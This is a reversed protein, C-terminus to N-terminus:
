GARDLLRLRDGSVILLELRNDGLQLAKEPVLLSFQQEHSGEVTFTLGMAAIRGNIALAVTRGGRRPGGRVTGVVHTPVFGTAPDVNRYRGAAAIRAREHGGPLPQLDSVRRGLLEPHPGFAYLGAGFLNLKRKLAARKDREFSSTDVLYSHRFKKAIIRRQRQAAVTPALASRGDASWPIRLGILDAITPLLDITRLPKDSIRGRHQGPAKIFFPVPAIDQVNAARVLRRDHGFRFSIGHDAVVAVVARAYTGSEHLRDLLEGLLRDTAQLQLLHRQYGQEVLFRIAHGPRREPGPLAEPSTRYFRGSPLYQFPVHPLLTHLLHLRPRSGGGIEAVFREFRRTRGRALNAHLRLYRHRKTERPTRRADAVAASTGAAATFRRWTETVSPLERGLDDPLLLHAYVLSVEDLLPRMRGGSGERAESACLSPPCLSTAEERVHLEYRGALMTFLSQPHDAAVPLREQRPLRADLIAPVAYPTDQAVSTTNRYWTADRALRAFNPFRRADVRGDAAMLSHVPLEDFIVLVVPARKTDAQVDAGDPFALKSVDSFLLFLAVFVLPAPSLVSLFSQAPRARAYILATAVGLALAIGFGALPYDREVVQLALAAVLVTVVALHFAWGLAVSVLGALWEVGLLVLPPVLILALAFAVIVGGRSGHTAFFEPHSGLLNFLPQAVAFAWLAGLHAGRELVERGWWPSGARSDVRRRPQRGGGTVPRVSALRVGDRTHSGGVTADPRAVWVAANREATPAPQGGLDTVLQEFERGAFGKDAVM